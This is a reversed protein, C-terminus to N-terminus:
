AAHEAFPIEFNALLSLQPALGLSELDEGELYLSTAEQINKQLEEFTKGQTVIGHDVASATYWGDEYAITFMIFHKM